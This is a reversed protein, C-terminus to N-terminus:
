VNLESCTSRGAADELGNRPQKTALRGAREPQFVIGDVQLRRMSGSAPSELFEHVRCGLIAIGLPAFVSIRNNQPDHQRPPVVTYVELRDSEIDRLVATSNMTIVDPPVEQARVVQARLLKRQLEEL